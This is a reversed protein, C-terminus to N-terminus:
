RDIKGSVLKPLRDLPIFLTPIMHPPLSRSLKSRIDAVLEKIDMTSFLGTASNAQETLRDPLHLFAILFADRGVSTRDLVDVALEVPEEIASRLASEIATIELRQGRLKIQTDRRGQFD